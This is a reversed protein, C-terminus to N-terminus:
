ATKAHVVNEKYAESLIAADSHELDFIGAPDIRWSRRRAEILLKIHYSPPLGRRQWNSVASQGVGAWQALGIPGGFADILDGVNRLTKKM